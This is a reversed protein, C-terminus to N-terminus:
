PDSWVNTGGKRKMVGIYLPTKAIDLKKKLKKENLRIKKESV